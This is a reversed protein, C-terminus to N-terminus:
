DEMVIISNPEDFLYIEPCIGPYISNWFILVSIEIRMRALDLTWNGLDEDVGYKAEEVARSRPFNVIQKLVVSKGNEDCIHYILNVFGDISEKVAHLDRINLQANQPYISKAKLYDNVQSKTLYEYDAQSM